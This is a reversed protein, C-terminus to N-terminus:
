MSSLVRHLRDALRLALQAITLTPTAQGCTRFVAAGAVYLNEAGWVKCDRDVVGDAPAASMRAGGM